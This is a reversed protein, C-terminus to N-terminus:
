AKRTSTRWPTATVPEGLRVAIPAVRQACGAGQLAMAARPLQLVRAVHATFENM